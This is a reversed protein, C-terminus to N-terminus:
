QHLCCFEEKDEPSFVVAKCNRADKLNKRKKSPKDKNHKANM